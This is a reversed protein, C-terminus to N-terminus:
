CFKGDWYDERAWLLTEPNAYPALKRELEARKKKRRAKERKHRRSREELGERLADRDFGVDGEAAAFEKTLRINERLKDMGIHGVCISHVGDQTLAYYMLENSPAVRIVWRFAKMSLIGMNKEMAAPLAVKAYHGYNTPNIAMMVVDFDFRNIAKRAMQSSDMTSFGISKTVGQEKLKLMEKYVGKEFQVLNEDKYLGHLMLVDVHDTKLRKLSQEIEKKAEDVVRSEFKTSLLIKDRYKSLVKGFREESSVGDKGIYASNTDFFNIGQKVAFELHQEWEGNPNTLFMSGGGFSLKSIELGTKGLTEMPMPLSFPDINKKSAAAQLVGSASVAALGAASSQIFKRRTIKRKKDTM